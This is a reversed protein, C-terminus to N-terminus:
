ARHVLAPTGTAPDMRAVDLATKLGEAQLQAAIRRGIGWIEDLNTAELV